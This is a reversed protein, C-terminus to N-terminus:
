VLRGRATVNPSGIRTIRRYGADNSDVPHEASPRRVAGLEGVADQFVVTDIAPQHEREDTRVESPLELEHLGFPDVLPLEQAKSVGAIRDHSRVIPGARVANGHTGDRSADRPERLEDHRS